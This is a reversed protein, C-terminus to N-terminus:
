PDLTTRPASQHVASIVAAAAVPVGAAWGSWTPLHLAAWEAPGFSSGVWLIWGVFPEAAKAVLAGLPEYVAGGVAAALGAVTASPYFGRARMARAVRTPLM